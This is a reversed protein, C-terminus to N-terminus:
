AAGAPGAPRSAGALDALAAVTRWNRTTAVQGLSREIRGNQLVTDSYRGALCLYVDAGAVVARDPVFRDSAADFEAVRDADPAAALVTVHLREPDEGGGLFPNREMLAAWQSATRAVVPVTLSLETRIAASLADGVAPAAGSGTCVLNGSQLHTRADGLGLDAALARLDAMPLRNRGGVNIGRLLLVYTDSRPV